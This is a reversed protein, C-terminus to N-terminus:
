KCKLVFHRTSQARKINNQQNLQQLQQSKHNPNLARYRNIEFFKGQIVLIVKQVRDHISVKHFVVTVPDKQCRFMIILLTLKYVISKVFTCSINFSVQSTNSSNRSHGQEVTVGSSNQAPQQSQIANGNMQQLTLYNSTISDSM